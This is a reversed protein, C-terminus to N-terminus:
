RLHQIIKMIIQIFYRFKDFIDKFKILLFKDKGNGPILTLYEIGDFDKVYENIKHFIIYM